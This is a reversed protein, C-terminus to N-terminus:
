QKTLAAAVGLFDSQQLSGASFRDLEKALASVLDSPSLSAATLVVGKVLEWGSKEGKRSTAGLVGPSLLLFASGDDIKVSDERIRNGFGGKPNGGIPTESASLIRLDDAGPSAVAPPPFGASAASIRGEAPDLVAAAAFVDHRGLLGPGMLAAAQLLVDRASKQWPAVMWASCQLLRTRLVHGDEYENRGCLLICTSGGFAPLFDAMAFGEGKQTRHFSAIDFGAAQPSGGCAHDLFKKGKLARGGAGKHTAAPTLSIGHKVALESIAAQLDAESFPATLFKFSPYSKIEFDKALDAHDSTIILPPTYGKYKLTRIIDLGHMGGLGLDICVMLPHNEMVSRMATKGDPCSITSFGAKKFVDTLFQLSSGRSHAVLGAPAGSSDSLTFYDETKGTSAKQLDTEAATAALKLAAAIHAAAQPFRTGRERLLSSMNGLVRVMDDAGTCTKVFAESLSAAPEGADLSNILAQSRLDERLSSILMSALDTGSAGAAPMIKDVLHKDLGSVIKIVTEFLNALSARRNIVMRGLVGDFVRIAAAKVNGGTQTAAGMGVVRAMILGLDKINGDMHDDLIDSKGHIIEESPGLLFNMLAREEEGTLVGMGTRGQAPPIYAKVSAQINPISAFDRHATDAPSPTGPRLSLLRAFSALEKADAGPILVVSEVGHLALAELVGAIQDPIRPLKSNEVTVSGPRFSISAGPILGMLTDYALYTDDAAGQVYPNDAPYLKYLRIVRGVAHLFRVAAYEITGSRFESGYIGSREQEAM